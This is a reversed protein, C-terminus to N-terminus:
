YVADRAARPTSSIVLLAIYQPQYVADRVNRDGLVEGIKRERGLMKDELKEM